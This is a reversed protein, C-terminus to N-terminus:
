SYSSVEGKGGWVTKLSIGLLVVDLYWWIEVLHACILFESLVMQQWMNARTFCHPPPSMGQCSSCLDTGNNWFVIQCERLFPSLCERHDLSEIRTNENAMAFFSFFIFISVLCIYGLIYWYITAVIIWVSSCWLITIISFHWQQWQYSQIKFIFLISNLLLTDCSYVAM